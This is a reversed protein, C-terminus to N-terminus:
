EKVRKRNFIQFIGSKKEARKEAQLKYKFFREYNNDPSYVFMDPTYAPFMTHDALAKMNKLIDKADKDSTFSFLYYMNERNMNDLLAQNTPVYENVKSGGVLCTIDKEFFSAREFTTDYYCGYDYVMCDYKQRIIKTIQAPNLYIDIGNFTLCETGKDYQYSGEDEMQSWERFFESENMEVIATTRGAQQFYKAIQVVQTTAGIYHKTGAVGVTIKKKQSERIAKLAAEEEKKSIPNEKRFQEAAEVIEKPAGERAYVGDLCAEFEKQMQGLVVSLVFDTYGANYFSQIIQSGPMIGKAMIIIKCNLGEQIRDVAGVIMEVDDVYQSIDIMVTDAAYRLVSEVNYQLENVDDFLQFTDGRKEIIKKAFFAESMAGIFLFM